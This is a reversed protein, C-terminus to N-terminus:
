FATAVSNLTTIKIPSMSGDTSNPLPQLDVATQLWEKGRDVSATRAKVSTMQITITDAPVDVPTILLSWAATTGNLYSTLETDDEYILNTKASISLYPSWLRYPSQSANATWIPKVNRKLTLDFDAMKAIAVGGVTLATSFSPVAHLVSYSPAPPSGQVVSPNACWKCTLEALGDATLKLNLEDLQAAALQRANYGNFDTVTYSAPQGQTTGAGALAAQAHTYPAATGTVTDTGGLIAAVLMPFTDARLHTGHSYEDYRVTEIMDYIDFMQGRMAKDDQQTIKPDLKPSLVPLFTTATVPTGRTTEKALGLWSLSPSYPM